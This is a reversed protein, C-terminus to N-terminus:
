GIIEFMTCAHNVCNCYLADFAVIITSPFPSIAYAHLLIPIEYTVPDVFYETPFVTLIPRTEYLPVVLDLIKPVM